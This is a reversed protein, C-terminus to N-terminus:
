GKMYDIREKFFQLWHDFTFTKKQYDEGLVRESFDELCDLEEEMFDAWWNKRGLEKEIEDIADKLNGHKELLELFRKYERKLELRWESIIEDEAPGGHVNYHKGTIPDYIDVIYGEWDIKVIYGSILAHWMDTDKVYNGIESPFVKKPGCPSPLKDPNEMVALRQQIEHLKKNIESFYDKDSNPVGQLEPATEPPSSIETAPITMYRAKYGM